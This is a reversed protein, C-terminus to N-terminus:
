IWEQGLRMFNKGDEGVGMCKVVMGMGNGCLYWYGM